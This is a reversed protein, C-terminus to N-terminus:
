ACTAQRGSTMAMSCCDYNEVYMSAFYDDPACGYKDTSGPIRVNKTVARVPSCRLENSTETAIHVEGFICM